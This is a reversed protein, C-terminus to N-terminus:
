ISAMGFYVLKKGDIGLKILETKLTDCVTIIGNSQRAAWAIMKRPLFYKSILNIDTGRATIVVPKNLIKGIIVAAVGDPYFYHTDILDFNEGNAIIKKIHTLVAAALLAPAITMSVKPILPYRPHYIDLDHRNEKEPVRGFDAYRGFKTSNFPFWPVPSVVKAEIGELELLYRLRREVFLGHGTQIQNPYLTTFTLIKM